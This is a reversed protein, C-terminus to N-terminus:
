GEDLIKKIEDPIPPLPVETVEMTDGRKKLLINVKGWHEKDM